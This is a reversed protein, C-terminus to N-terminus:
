KPNRSLDPLPVSDVKYPKEFFVEPWYAWDSPAGFFKLFCNGFMNTELFYPYALSISVGYMKRHKDYYNAIIYNDFLAGTLTYYDCNQSARHTEEVTKYKTIFSYPKTGRVNYYVSVTKNTTDFTIIFNGPIPTDYRDVTGACVYAKSFYFRAVRALCVSVTLCFFLIILNGKLM